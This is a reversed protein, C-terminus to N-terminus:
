NNKPIAVFTLTTDDAFLISFALSLLHSLDNIYLLFLVPGLISGQPVGISILQHFSVGGEISVFQARNTLYSTILELPM